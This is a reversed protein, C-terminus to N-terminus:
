QSARRFAANIREQIEPPIPYTRAEIVAGPKSILTGKTEPREGDMEATARKLYVAMDLAEEYAHQIWDRLSHPQDAVTAGYKAIGKAQRAAIDRCVEAEIGTAQEDSM